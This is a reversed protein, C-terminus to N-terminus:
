GLNAINYIPMLISFVLFAVGGGIVLMIAPELLSSLGKIKTGTEDEYYVALNDLIQELKGTQEGVSIMQAVIVPFIPNQSLPVSMPVGREVQSAVEILGDYYLKNDIVDAVIKIAEIIPIGSQVLMSMTRNMRAMYAGQNLGGFVPFSIQMHNWFTRGTGTSTIFVRGGVAAGVVILIALYWYQVMFDSLAILLRTSIPLQAGAEEFISKLQPIVRVMMLIAVGIMAVFIFAPYLLASRIKGTFSAENELQEAMRKLVIDMKGSQEGSRIIAIYVKNFVHPHKAIATSFSYGAELDHIITTITTRMVVNRTQVLLLNLAQNLPVGSGIMTSLQRSFFVREKLSIRNFWSLILDM